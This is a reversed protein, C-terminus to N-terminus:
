SEYFKFKLNEKKLKRELLKELRSKKDSYFLHSKCKCDSCGFKHICVLNKSLFNAIKCEKKSKCELYYIRIVEAKQLLYDIHWFKKKRRKLHREIRKELSNLASGVYAYFGKKFKIKGLSGIKIESENEMQMLIVYIGKM